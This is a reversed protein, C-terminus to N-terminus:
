NIIRLNIAKDRGKRDKDIEFEIRRGDALLKQSEEQIESEHFFIEGGGDSLIFGYGKTESFWAITGKM